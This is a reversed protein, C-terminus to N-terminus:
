LLQFLTRANETTAQAVMELNERKLEAVLELTWAVDAPEAQHGRYSVPSDTELVLRELPIEKVARRHEEHYSLAPTASALYGQTLIERLVNIPGTYWHFVAKKVGSEKVSNFCERWAYRSHVSVPKDYKRALELAQALVERQRGKSIKTVLKKQYDLGIEGIAVAQAINEEIFHLAWKVELANEALSWPHLGLAPFIYTKFREALELVKENSKSDSGMAIIARVGREKAKEMVRELEELEDLHAHTDVLQNVEM